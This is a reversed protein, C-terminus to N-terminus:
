ILGGRPDKCQDIKTQSLRVSEFYLCQFHLNLKQPSEQPGIMLKMLDLNDPLSCFFLCTLNLSFIALMEVKTKSFRYDSIYRLFVAYVWILSWNLKSHMRFFFIRIISLWFM